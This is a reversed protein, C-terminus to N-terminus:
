VAINRLQNMLSPHAFVGYPTEWACPKMKYGWRKVWKKQIREHYANSMWTKKHHIVAPTETQELAFRNERIGIDGFSHPFGFDKPSPIDNILDMAEYLKEITFPEPEDNINSCTGDSLIGIVDRDLSDQIRAALAASVGGYASGVILVKTKNEINM